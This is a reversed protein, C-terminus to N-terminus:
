LMVFSRWECEGNAKGFLYDKGNAHIIGDRLECKWKNKMRNVRDYLCLMIAGSGEVEDEQSYEEEPDDLDSNIADSDEGINSNSCGVSSRDEGYNAFNDDDDNNLDNGSTDSTGDMQSLVYESTNGTRNQQISITPVPQLNQSDLNELEKLSGDTQTLFGGDPLTLSGSGSSSNIGGPGDMGARNIVGKVSENATEAPVSDEKGFEPIKQGARMVPM